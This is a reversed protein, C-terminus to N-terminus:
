PFGPMAYSAYYNEAGYGCGVGYSCYYNGAAYGGNTRPIQTPRGPIYGRNVYRVYGGAQAREVSLSIGRQESWDLSLLTAIAVTSAAIATRKLAMKMSERM